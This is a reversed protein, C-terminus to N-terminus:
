LSSLHFWHFMKEYTYSTGMKVYVTCVIHVKHVVSMVFIRLRHLRDVLYSLNIAGDVMKRHGQVEPTGTAGKLHRRHLESTM